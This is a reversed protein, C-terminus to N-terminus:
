VGRLCLGQLGVRVRMGTVLSMISVDYDQRKQREELDYKDSELQVIMDWLQQAKQRLKDVSLGEIELPKVRFSLAIEKDEALQEKTKNMESRAFAVNAFKDMGVASAPAADKKNIVFNPTAQQKQKEMAEMMAQRKREAEELRKRKAEAERNKKEEIERLKQDEQKRKMEILLKEQEARQTKRKAQREKLKKLEEEEKQRQRKRQEIYEGWMAEEEEKKKRLKEEIDTM